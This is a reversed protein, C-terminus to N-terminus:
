AKRRFLYQACSWATDIKILELGLGLGAAFDKVEQVSAYEMPWGGVWDRVGVFYSMGRNDRYARMHATPHKGRVLKWLMDAAVYGPEIAHKTLAGGRNYLRKVRMWFEPSPFKHYDTNYLAIYLLGGPAVRNAANRFGTWQDGTHHLVGWCYVVDFQGLKNMYDNDIVSGQEVRWNAPSGALAHMRRTAAVSNPDYDFSFLEAVEARHAVLSTLGPGCGIDIMRKGRLTELGLFGLLTRRSIAVREEDFQKAHYDLFNSGFGFRPVDANTM